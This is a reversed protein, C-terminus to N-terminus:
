RVRDNIVTGGSGNGRDLSRRAVLYTRGIVLQYIRGLHQTGVTVRRKSSAGLLSRRSKQHFWLRDSRKLSTPWSTQGRSSCFGDASAAFCLQVLSQGQHWWTTGAVLLRGLPKANCKLSGLDFSSPWDNLGADLPLLGPGPDRM